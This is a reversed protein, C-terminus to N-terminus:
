ICFGILTKTSIEKIQEIIQSYNGKVNRLKCFSDGATEIKELPRCSGAMRNRTTPGSITLTPVMTGEKGNRPKCESFIPKLEEAQGDQGAINM